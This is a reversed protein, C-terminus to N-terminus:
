PPTTPASCAPSPKRLFVIALDVGTSQGLMLRLATRTTLSRIKNMSPGIVQAREADSMQEYASWFSRISDPVTAQATVFRRFSPNLLLEPVETLAFSSGDAAQTQTLTLLCARLVDSTRPGWSSRWLESFAHVVHDVVLEREHDSRGVQLVNFGVPFDTASPDLVIVDATRSDPVRALVDAVLDAKPDILILGDGREIDRCPRTPM